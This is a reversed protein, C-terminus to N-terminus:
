SFLGSKALCFLCNRGREASYKTPMKMKRHCALPSPATTAGSVLLSSLPPSVPPHGAGIFTPDQSAQHHGIALEGRVETVISPEWHADPEKGGLGTSNLPLTSKAGFSKEQRSEGNEKKKLAGVSLAPPKRLQNGIQQFCLKIIAEGNRRTPTEYAGMVAM